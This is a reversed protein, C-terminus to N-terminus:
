NGSRNDIRKRHISGIKGKRRVCFFVKNWFLLCFGLLGSLGFLVFVEFADRLLLQEKIEEKYKSIDLPLVVSQTRNIMEFYVVDSRFPTKKIELLYDFILNVRMIEDSFILYLDFSLTPFDQNETKPTVYVDLLIKNEFVRQYKPYHRYFPTSQNNNITAVTVKMTDQTLDFMSFTVDNKHQLGVLINKNNFLEFYMITGLNIEFIHSMYFSLIVRPSIDKTNQSELLVKADFSFSYVSLDPLLLTIIISQEAANGIKYVGMKVKNFEKTIHAVIKTNTIRFVKMLNPNFKDKNKSYLIQFSIIHNLIKYPIQVQVQDNPSIVGFTLSMLANFSPIKFRYNTSFLAMKNKYNFTFDFVQFDGYINVHTFTDKKYFIIINKKFEFDDFDVSYMLSILNQFSSKNIQNSGMKFIFIKKKRKKHNKLNMEESMFRRNMRDLSKKFCVFVLVNTQPIVKLLCNEPKTGLLSGKSGFFLLSRPLSQIVKEKQILIVGKKNIIIRQHTEAGQYVEIQNKLRDMTFVSSVTEAFRNRQLIKFPSILTVLPNYNDPFYDMMLQIGLINGVVFEQPRFILVIHRENKILEILKHPILNKSKLYDKILKHDNMTLTLFFNTRSNMTNFENSKKLLEEQNKDQTNDTFLNKHIGWFPQIISQFTTVMKDKVDIVPTSAKENTDDTSLKRPHLPLNESYFLNLVSDYDEEIQSNRSEVLEGINKNKSIIEEV